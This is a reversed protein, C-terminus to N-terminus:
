REKKMEEYQSIRKKMAEQNLEKISTPLTVKLTKLPSHTAYYSYKHRRESESLRRSM